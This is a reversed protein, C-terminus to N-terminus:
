TILKLLIQTLSARFDGVPPVVEDVCCFLFGPFLRDDFIQFGSTQAVFDTFAGDDFRDLGARLGELL